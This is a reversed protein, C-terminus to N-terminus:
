RGRTQQQYGQQQQPQQNQNASDWFVHLKIPGSSGLPMTDIEIEVNPSTAGQNAPWLTARGVTAYRNKMKAQGTQQDIEQSQYREAIVAIRGKDLPQNGQM